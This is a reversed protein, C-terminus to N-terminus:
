GNRGAPLFCRPSYRLCGLGPSPPSHESGSNWLVHATLRSLPSLKWLICGSGWHSQTKFNVYCRGIVFITKFVSDWGM